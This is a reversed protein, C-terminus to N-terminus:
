RQNTSFCKEIVDIGVHMITPFHRCVIPQDLGQSHFFSLLVTRFNGIAENPTATRNVGVTPLNGGSALVEM